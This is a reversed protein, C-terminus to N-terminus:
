GKFETDCEKCRYRSRIYFPYVFLLISALATFFGKIGRLSKFGPYLNSSGCNPCTIVKDTENTYPAAEVRNIIELAAELDSERIKLKVGGVTINYLPNLGVMLEDFIECPIGENELVTRFLHAEVPNDFTKLTILNM